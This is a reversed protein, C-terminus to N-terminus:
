TTEYTGWNIDVISGLITLMNQARLGIEQLSMDKQHGSILSVTWNLNIEKLAVGISGTFYYKWTDNAKLTNTPSPMSMECM